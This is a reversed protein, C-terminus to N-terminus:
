EVFINGSRQIVYYSSPNKFEYHPTDSKVFYKNKRLLYQIKSVVHSRKLGEHFRHPCTAAPVGRLVHQTSDVLSYAQGPGGIGASADEEVNGIGGSMANAEVAARVVAVWVAM